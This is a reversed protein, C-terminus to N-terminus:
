IYQVRDFGVFQRIVLVVRVNNANGAL